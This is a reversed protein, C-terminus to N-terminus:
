RPARILESIAPWQAHVVSWALPATLLATFFFFTRRCCGKCMARHAIMLGLITGGFGFWFPRAHGHAWRSATGIWAPAAALPGKAACELGASLVTPQWWFLTTLSAVSAVTALFFLGALPSCTRGRCAGGCRSDKSPESPAADDRMRVRQEM